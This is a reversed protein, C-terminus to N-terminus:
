PLSDPPWPRQPLRPVRTLTLLFQHSRGLNPWRNLCTQALAPPLIGCTMLKALVQLWRHWQKLSGRDCRIIQLLFRLTTLSPRGWQGHCPRDLAKYALYKYRNGWIIPHHQALVPRDRQLERQIISRSAAEHALVDISASTPRQRYLVQVKPVLAVPAIAALRLWLDWDESHTLTEDFGGEQEFTARRILANSGSSIVDTVLLRERIWGQFPADIVQGLRQGQEDMLETWSYVMVADPHQDLAAVQDALKDPLWCDDADLFGLLTGRAWTAGANRAGSVGPHQSPKSKGRSRWRIRGLPDTAAIQEVVAGTGDTSGDDVVWVDFDQFTQDLLSRLTEGITEAGNLVPIIVSVMPPTPVSGAGDRLEDDLGNSLRHNEM